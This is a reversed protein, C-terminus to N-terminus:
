NQNLVFSIIQFVALSQHSIIKSICQFCNYSETCLACNTMCSKCSKSSIDFYKNVGCRGCIEDNSELSCDVCSKEDASLYLQKEGVKDCQICIKTANVVACYLCNEIGCPKCENNELYFKPECKVCSSGDYQACNSIESVQQCVLNPIGSETEQIVLFFNDNCELCQTESIATKCNAPAAISFTILLLFFLM